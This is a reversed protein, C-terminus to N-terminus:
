HWGYVSRNVGPFLQRLESLTLTTWPGRRHPLQAASLKQFNVQNAIMLEKESLHLSEVFQYADRSPCRVSSWSTKGGVTVGASGAASARRRLYRM